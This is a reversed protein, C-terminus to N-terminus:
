RRKHTGEWGFPDERTIREFDERARELREWARQIERKTAKRRGSLSNYSRSAGQLELRADEFIFEAKTKTM